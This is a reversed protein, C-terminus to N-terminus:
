APTPSTRFRLRPSSVLIKWVATFRPWISMRCSKLRCQAYAVRDKWTELRALCVSDRRSRHARWSPRELFTVFELVEELLGDGASRRYRLVPRIWEAEKFPFVAIDLVIGDIMIGEERCRDRACIKVHQFAEEDSHLSHSVLKSVRRWTQRKYM